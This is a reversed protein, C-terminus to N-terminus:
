TEPVKIITLDEAKIAISRQGNMAGTVPSRKALAKNGIATIALNYAVPKPVTM